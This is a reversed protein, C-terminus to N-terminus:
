ITYDSVGSFNNVKDQMFFLTKDNINGAVNQGNDFDFQGEGDFGIPNGKEDIGLKDKFDDPIGGNFWLNTTTVTRGDFFEIEFTRGGYGRFTSRSNEDGIQYVVGNIVVLNPDNNKQQEVRENWYDISFCRDSNCLGCDKYHSNSIDAGCIKCKM